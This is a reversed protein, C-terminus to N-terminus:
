AINPNSSAAVSSSPGIHGTTNAITSHVGATSFFTTASTLLATPHADRGPEFANENSASVTSIGAMRTTGGSDVGQLNTTYAGCLTQFRTDFLDKLDFLNHGDKM